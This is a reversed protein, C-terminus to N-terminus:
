AMAAAATTAVRGTDTFAPLLTDDVIDPAPQVWAAGKYVRLEGPEPRVLIRASKHM